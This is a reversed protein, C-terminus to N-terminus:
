CTIRSRPIFPQWTNLYDIFIVWLYKEPTGKKKIYAERYRNYVQLDVELAQDVDFDDPGDVVIPNKGFLNAMTRIYGSVFTQEASQTTIFILPKEYFIAYNIATSYHLVVLNSRKVLAATEGIIIERGQYYDPLSKYNSRPHAAIVMRIAYKEELM